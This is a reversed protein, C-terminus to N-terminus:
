KTSQAISLQGNFTKGLDGSQDTGNSLVIINLTYKHAAGTSVPGAFTGIGLNITSVGKPIVVPESTQSIITGNNSENISTITYALTGEQFDNESVILDAEYNLNNSGTVVGTIQFNKSAITEGINNAVGTMSSSGDYEVALTGSTYEITKSESGNMTADFYSFTTGAVAVLLTAVGLITLLITSGKNSNM